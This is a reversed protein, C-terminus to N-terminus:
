PTFEYIFLKNETPYLANATIVIKKADNINFTGNLQEHNIDTASIITGADITDFFDTTRYEVIVNYGNRTEIRWFVFSSDSYPYIVFFDVRGVYQGGKSPIWNPIGLPKTQWTSGNWYLVNYHTSDANVISVIKGSPTVVTAKAMIDTTDAATTEALCNAVLEAKNIAGSSVINKSFSHSANYFTIGDSSEIYYNDILKNIADNSMSIMYRLKTSDYVCMSYPRATYGGSATTVANNVSWTAGNDTSKCIDDVILGNRLWLYTNAGITTLQPYSGTNSIQSLSALSTQSKGTTRQIYVKDSHVEGEVAMLIENNPTITIGPAIHADTRGSNIYNAYGAPSVIKGDHLIKLLRPQKDYGIGARNSFAVYTQNNTFDYIISTRFRDTFPSHSIDNILGDNGIGTTGFTNYYLSNGTFTQVSMDKMGRMSDVRVKQGIAMGSTTGNNGLASDIVTYNTSFPDNRIQMDLVCRSIGPHYNVSGRNYLTTIESSDLVKRFLRTVSQKYLSYISSLNGLIVPQTNQITGTLNNSFVQVSPYRKGNFYFKLGSVDSSGDYTIIIQLWKNVPMQSNFLLAYGSSDALLTVIRNTASNQILVWFQGSTIYVSIGRALGIDYKNFLYKQPSVAPINIWTELSWADTRELNLSDSNPFTIKSDVGDFSYAYADLTRRKSYSNQGFSQFCVITFLFILTGKM